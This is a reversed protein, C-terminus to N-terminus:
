PAAEPVLYEVPHHCQKGYGTGSRLARATRIVGAHTVALISNGDRRREDLWAEVRRRLDAASEGDPPGETEYHQLWRAYREPLERELDRHTRGEWVGFDLECLREDIHLPVALRHSLEVGVDRARVSPSAWIQHWSRETGDAVREIRTAAAGADCTTPVDLRGYCLGAVTVPAHRVLWIVAM